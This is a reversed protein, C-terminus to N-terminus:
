RLVGFFISVELRGCLQLIRKRKVEYTANYRITHKEGGFLWITNDCSCSAMHSVAPFLASPTIDRQVSNWEGKCFVEYQRLFVDEHTSYDFYNGNILVIHEDPCAALTCRNRALPFDQLREWQSQAIDFRWFDSFYVERREQSNWEYGGAIYLSSNSDVVGAHYARASPGTSCSIRKWYPLEPSHPISIFWLDDLFEEGFGGFLFAGGRAASLTLANKGSPGPINHNTWTRSVINYEWLDDLYKPKYRISPKERIIEGHTAGGYLFISKRSTCPVMGHNHRKCPWLETDNSQQVEQWTRNAESGVWFDSLYERKVKAARGGFLFMLGDLYCMASGQRAPVGCSQWEKVEM